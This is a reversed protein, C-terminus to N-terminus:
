RRVEYTRIKAIDLPRQKQGFVIEKILEGKNSAALEYEKSFSISQPLCLETCIGCSFCSGLNISFNKVEMSGDNRLKADMSLAKVPCASICDGCGTCKNLDNQLYGKFKPYMDQAGRGSVPDPYQEVATIYKRDKQLFYRGVNAVSSIIFRFLIHTKMALAGDM